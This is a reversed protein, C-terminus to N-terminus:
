EIIYDEKIWAPILDVYDVIESQKMIDGANLNDTDIVIVNINPDSIVDAVGGSVVVVVRNNM